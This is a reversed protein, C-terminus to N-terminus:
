RINYFARMNNKRPGKQVRGGPKLFVPDISKGYDEIVKISEEKPREANM